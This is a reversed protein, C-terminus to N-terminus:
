HVARRIGQATNPRHRTLPLRSVPCTERQEQRPDERVMPRANRHETPAHSLNARPCEQARRCSRGHRHDIRQRGVLIGRLCTHRSAFRGAPRRDSMTGVRWESPRKSEGEVIPIMVRQQGQEALPFAKQVRAPLPTNRPILITNLLRQTTLDRGVVGLSHSNVNILRLQDVPSRVATRRLMGAYLAAGRAVAEDPSLSVEPSKGTLRRIMEGVMPMRTAGGVLLVRKVEQWELDADRLVQRLTTETRGLLNAVLNEFEDRAVQINMGIGAFSISARTQKRMSLTHKIREAEQWLTACETPDVRPDLGHEQLFREAIHDVLREDFDRGGLKVDGDTALARLTWGDVHLVTADFTGGGLDYVVLNEVQAFGGEDDLIGERHAYAIAAATPENIIDLVRLGALRAAEITSRRRTEDFFAPVTIVAERVVGLQEEAYAKLHRLVFGCLVEPPIDLGRIRHRYHSSGMDRKFCDAYGDPETVRIAFRRM